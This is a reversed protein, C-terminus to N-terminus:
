RFDDWFFFLWVEAACGHGILMAPVIVRDPPRACDRGGVLVVEVMLLDEILVMLLIVHLLLRLLLDM